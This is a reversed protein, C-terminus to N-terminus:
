ESLIVFRDSIVEEFMPLLVFNFYQNSNINVSRNMNNIICGLVLLRFVNILNPNNYENMNKSSDANYGSLFSKINARFWVKDKTFLNKKDDSTVDQKIILSVSRLSYWMNAIDLLRPAYMNNSFLNAFIGLDIYFNSYYWKDPSRMTNPLICNGHSIYMRFPYKHGLTNYICEILRDHYKKLMPMNDIVRKLAKDLIDCARVVYDNNSEISPTIMFHKHFESLMGGLRYADPGFNGGADYPNNHHSLYFDRASTCAITFGDISNNIYKQIVFSVRPDGEIDVVGYGVITPGAKINESQLLLLTKYTDLSVTDISRFIKLILEHNYIVVSHSQSKDLFIYKEKNINSLNYSRIQPYFQLGSKNNIIDNKKHLTNCLLWNALIYDNNGAYFLCINNNNYKAICITNENFIVDSDYCVSIFLQYKHNTYSGELLVYSITFILSYYEVLGKSLLFYSKELTLTSINSFPEKFWNRRLLWTEVNKNINFSCFDKYELVM